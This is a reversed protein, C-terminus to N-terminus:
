ARDGLLEAVRRQLEEKAVGRILFRKDRSTQGSQL